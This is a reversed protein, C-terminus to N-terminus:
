TCLSPSGGCAVLLFVVDTRSEPFVKRCQVSRSLEGHCGEVDASATMTTEEWLPQELVHWSSAAITAKKWLPEMERKGGAENVEDGIGSSAAGLGGSAGVKTWRVPVPVGHPCSVVVDCAADCEAADLENRGVTRSVGSGGKDPGYLSHAEHPSAEEISPYIQRTRLGDVVIQFREEASEGLMVCYRYAGGGM